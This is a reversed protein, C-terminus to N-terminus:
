VIQQITCPQSYYVRLPSRFAHPRVPSVCLEHADHKFLLEGAKMLSVALMSFGDQVLPM